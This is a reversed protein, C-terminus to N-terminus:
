NVTKFKSWTGTDKLSWRAENVLRVHGHSLLSCAGLAATVRVAGIREMRKQSGDRWQVSRAPLPLCFRFEM